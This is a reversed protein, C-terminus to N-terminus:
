RTLLWGGYTVHLWERASTSPGDRSQSLLFVALPLAADGHISMGATM